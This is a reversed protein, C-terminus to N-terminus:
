GGCSVPEKKIEAFRHPIPTRPAVVVHFPVHTRSAPSCFDGPLREVVHILTGQDIQLIRRVEVSDGAEKRTGVIGVVVMDTAFDVSPVPRGPAHDSWFAQFGGEDIYTVPASLSSRSDEGRDLTGFPVTGNYASVWRVGVTAERMQLAAQVLRAAGSGPGAGAPVLNSLSGETCRIWTITSGRADDRISLTIRTRTPGCERTSGPPDPPLSDIFLKLAADENLQTIVTAYSAAFQSPDGPSKELSEDGVLGRYSVGERLTWAGTSSWTLTQALQGPQEVEMQGLRAGLPVELHVEIRGLQGIRLAEPDIGGDDGCAGVAVALAAPGVLAWRRARGRATTGSRASQRAHIM